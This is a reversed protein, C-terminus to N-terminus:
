KLAQELKTLKRLNNTYSKYDDANIKDNNVTTYFGDCELVVAMDGLRFNADCDENIRVVWDGKTFM